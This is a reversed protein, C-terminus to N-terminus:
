EKVRHQFRQLESSFREQEPNPNDRECKWKLCLVLENISILNKRLMGDFLQGSVYKLLGSFVIPFTLSGGSELQDL